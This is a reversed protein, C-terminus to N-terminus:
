FAILARGLPSPWFPPLLRASQQSLFSTAQYRASCRGHGLRSERQAGRTRGRRKRHRRRWVRGRRRGRDLDTLLGLRSTQALVRSRASGMGAVCCCQSYPWRGLLVRGGNGSTKLAGDDMSNRILNNSNVRRRLGLCCAASRRRGGRGGSRAFLLSKSEVLNM